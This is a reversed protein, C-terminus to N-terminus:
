KQRDLSCSVSTLRLYSKELKTCTGVIVFQNVDEQGTQSATALEKRRIPNDEQFRKLRNLRREQEEASAPIDVMQQIAKKKRNVKDILDIMEVSALMSKRVKGSQQAVHVPYSSHAMRFISCLAASCGLGQCIWRQGTQQTCSALRTNKLYSQGYNLKLRIGRRLTATISSRRLTSGKCLTMQSGFFLTRERCVNIIVYQLSPPWSEMTPPASTSPTDKSKPTSPSPITTAPKESKKTMMIPKAKRKKGITLYTLIYICALTDGVKDLTGPTVAIYAPAEQPKVTSTTGNNDTASSKLVTLWM